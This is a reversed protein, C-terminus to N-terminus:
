EEWAIISILFGAIEIDKRKIFLHPISIPDNEIFKKTNYKKVKEDLFEKLENTKLAM